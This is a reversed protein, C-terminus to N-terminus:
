YENRNSASDVGPDYHSQFYLTLQFELSKMPFRVRWRVAQLMTAWGVVSGHAGNRFPSLHSGPSEMGNEPSVDLLQTDVTWSLSYGYSCLRGSHIEHFDSGIGCSTQARVSGVLLQGLEFLCQSICFNISFPTLVIKSWYLDLQRSCDKNSQFSARKGYMGRIRTFSAWLIFAYSRYNILSYIFQQWQKCMEMKQVWCEM